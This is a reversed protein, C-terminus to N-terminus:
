GSIVQKIGPKLNKVNRGTLMEFLIVGLSFVDSSSKLYATSSEQEPSM